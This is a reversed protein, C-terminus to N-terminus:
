KSPAFLSAEPKTDLRINAIRESVGVSGDPQYIDIRRHIGLEQDIFFMVKSFPIQPDRARGEIVFVAKEDATANPLVTLEMERTMADILAAGGLPLAGQRLSPPGQQKQSQGMLETTTHVDKGDFLVDLKMEMVFPEPLRAAVTKRYMEKKDDRLFHVQGNGTLELPTETFPMVFDLTVDGTLSGVDKWAAEVREKIAELTPTEAPALAAPLLTALLAFCRILRM